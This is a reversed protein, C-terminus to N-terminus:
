PAPTDYGDAYILDADYILNSFLEGSDNAGEITFRGIPVTSSFGVFSANPAQVAPVMITDISIDQDDFVNVTFPELSTGNTVDFAVHYVDHHFQVQTIEVFTIAGVVDFPVNVFGQTLLAVNGPIASVTFGLEVAGLDYCPSALNSSIGVGANCVQNPAVLSNTFDEVALDVGNAANLFATVDAHVTISGGHIVQPLATTSSEVHNTSHNDIDLFSTQANVSTAALAIIITKIKM